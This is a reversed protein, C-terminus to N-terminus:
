AALAVPRLRPHMTGDSEAVNSELLRPGKQIGISRV